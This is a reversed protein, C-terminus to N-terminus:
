RGSKASLLVKVHAACDARQQPWAAKDIVVLQWGLKKLSIGYLLKVLPLNNLTDKRSDICLVGIRIMGQPTKKGLDDAASIEVEKWSNLANGMRSLLLAFHLRVNSRGRVTHQICTRDNRSLELLTQGVTNLFNGDALFECWTFFIDQIAPDVEEKSGSLGGLLPALTWISNCAREFNLRRFERIDAEKFKGLVRFAPMPFISHLSCYTVISILELPNLLMREKPLLADCELKSELGSRGLERGHETFVNQFVSNAVEALANALPKDLINLKCLPVALRCVDRLQGRKLLEPLSEKAFEVVTFLFPKHSVGMSAMGAICQVGFRFNILTLGLKDLCTWVSRLLGVPAAPGCRFQIARVVYSVECLTAFRNLDLCDTALKHFTDDEITIGSTCAHYLLPALAYPNLSSDVAHDFVKKQIYRMVVKTSSERPTLAMFLRRLLSGPFSVLNHDVYAALEGLLAEPFSKQFIVMELVTVFCRPNQAAAKFLYQALPIHCCQYCQSRMGSCFHAMVDPDVTYLMDATFQRMTKTPSAFSDDIKALFTIPMGAHMCSGAISLLDDLQLHTFELDAWGSVIELMRPSRYNEARVQQFISAAAVMMASFDAQSLETELLDRCRAMLPELKYSGVRRQMLETTIQFISSNTWQSVIDLTCLKALHEVAERPSPSPLVFAQGRRQFSLRILMCVEEGSFQRLSTQNLKEIAAVALEARGLANGDHGKRDIEKLIERPSLGGGYKPLAGVKESSDVPSKQLRQLGSNRQRDSYQRKSTAAFINFGSVQGFKLLRVAM